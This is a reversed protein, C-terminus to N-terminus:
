LENRKKYGNKKQTKKQISNWNIQTKFTFIEVLIPLIIHTHHRRCTRVHKRDTTVQPINDHEINKM